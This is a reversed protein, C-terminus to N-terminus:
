QGRKARLKATVDNEDIDDSLTANVATDDAADIFDDNNAPMQATIDLSAVSAMSTDNLDGLSNAIDEAARAIEENLAQTASYEDEYDQEVVTYDVESSVTYDGSVLTEDGGEVPIAELDHLTEDEPQPMKTADVIVSMDYDDDVVGQDDFEEPLVESDLISQPDINLPPIIDTGADSDHGSSMEEPLELDLETGAAFGFDQAIDIESGEQLGSGIILDADLALNEQTEELEDITVEIESVEDLMRGGANTKRREKPALAGIPSAGFRSRVMRGFLLLIGILTVGAGALWLLWNTSKEAVPKSQIRASAVNPSTSTTVPAALQTDAIDIVAPATVSAALPAPAPTSYVRLEAIPVAVQQPTTGTYISSQQKGASTDQLASRDASAVSLPAAAGFNPITLWSGTKLKNPDNNLFADPNAAFIADAAAWLGVPRDVIRQAIDGLSEFRQVQYRTGTSVPETSPARRAAPTAAVIPAPTATGPRASAPQVNNATFAIGAPDVFMTYERSLQAAYPCRVNLRMSVIPERVATTGTISIVGNAVSIKSASLDPASGAFQGSQVAVCTNELTENPALAYAISARLPQGLSSKIQAEGLELAAAPLAVLSGGVAVLTSISATSKKVASVGYIKSLPQVRIRVLAGATGIAPPEPIM